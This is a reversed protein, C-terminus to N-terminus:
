QMLLSFEKMLPDKLVVSNDIAKLMRICVNSNKELVGALSFFRRIQRINRSIVALSVFSFHM